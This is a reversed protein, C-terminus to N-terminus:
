AFRGLALAALALSSVTQGDTIAGDAVMRLAEGFPCLRVATIGDEDRHDPLGSSLGTALYVHQREDCIGNMAELTGLLRWTAAAVGAEERLERQAAHLPEEGDSGGAPVELSPRGTTYREQVVLVVEDHETLAVVFVSPAQTEVVGYIGEGGDPRRVADERVRIWPNEYVVRSSITSWGIAPVKPAPLRRRRGDHRHDRLRLTPAPGSWRKGRLSVACCRVNPRRARRTTESEAIFRRGGAFRAPPGAPRGSGFFATM